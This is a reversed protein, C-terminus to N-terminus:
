YVPLLTQYFDKFAFLLGLRHELYQEDLVLNNDFFENLTVSILYLNDLNHKLHLLPLLAGACKDNPNNHLAHYEYKKIFNNLRKETQKIVALASPEFNLVSQAKDKSLWFNYQDIQNSTLTPTANPNEKCLFKSGVIHGMRNELFSILREITNTNTCGLLKILIHLNSLNKIKLGQEIVISGLKKLGLPDQSSNVAVQAEFLQILSDLADLMLLMPDNVINLHPKLFQAHHLALSPFEKVIKSAYDMKFWLVAEAPYIKYLREVKDLITGRNPYFLTSALEEKWSQYDANLDQELLFHMDDTRCQIVALADKKMKDSVPKQAVLMLKTIFQEGTNTKNTLCIAQQHEEVCTKLYLTPLTTHPIDVIYPYPKQASNAIIPLLNLDKPTHTPMALLAQEIIHTRQQFLLCQFYKLYNRAHDITIPQLHEDYTQNSATFNLFTFNLIKDDLMNIISQIPRVFNFDSGPLWRMSKPWKFDRLISNSIHTLYKIASMHETKSPVLYHDNETQLNEATIQHKLAFKAIIEKPANIKPGKIASHEIKITPEVQAICTLRRQNCYVKFDKFYPTLYTELQKVAGNQMTAPIPQSYIEFLWTQYSM